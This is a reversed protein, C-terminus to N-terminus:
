KVTPPVSNKQQPSLLTPTVLHPFKLFTPTTISLNINTPIANDSTLQACNTLLFLLWM